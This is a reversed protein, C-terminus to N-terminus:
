GIYKKLCQKQILTFKETDINQKYEELAIVFKMINFADCLNNDLIEMNYFKYTKLIIIDKKVGAPVKDKFLFKKWSSPTIEYYKIKKNHLLIRIFYGLGALQYISRGNSCFSFGEIGCIITEDKLNLFDTIANSIDLIREEIKKNVDSQIRKFNGYSDYIGTANLSLDIGIYRM